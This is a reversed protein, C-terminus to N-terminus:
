GVTIKNIVTKKQVLAPWFRMEYGSSDAGTHLRAGYRHTVGKEDQLACANITCVDGCNSATRSLLARSAADASVYTM